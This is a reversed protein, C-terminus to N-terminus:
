YRRKVKVGMLGRASWWVSDSVRGPSKRGKLRQDVLWMGVVFEEKGLWPKGSLNVLDWIEALVDPSLHSRSWIDRVIINLVGNKAAESSQDSTDPPSLSPRSRLYPILLGRNAAWVGEYRKREPETIEDRWRKRDGEHHKHPHKNFVRNGKREKVEDETNPDIPARMTTRMTRNSPSPERSPRTNSDASHTRHFISSRGSRRRPPPPPPKTPSPARSSALSSAVMANALSSVTLQPIPHNSLTSDHHRGNPVASNSRDRSPTNLPRPPPKISPTLAPRVHQPEIPQTESTAKSASSYYSSGISSSSSQPVTIPKPRKVTPKPPPAPTSRAYHVETSQTKTSLSYSSDISSSSPQPEKISDPRKLPPKSVLPHNLYSVSSTKEKNSLTTRSGPRRSDSHGLVPAPENGGAEYHRILSNISPGDTNPIVAFDSHSRQPSPRLRKPPTTNPTPSPLLEGSRRAALNAAYYADHQPLATRPVVDLRGLAGRTEYGTGPSGRGARSAAALAGHNRAQTQHLLTPSNLPSSFARNAGHFAPSRDRSNGYGTM